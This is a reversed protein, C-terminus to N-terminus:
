FQVTFMAGDGTPSLSAQKAPGSWLRYGCYGALVLGAGASVGGWRRRAWIARQDASYADHGYGVIPGSGATRADLDGQRLLASVLLYGGVGLAAVGTGAGVASLTRATAASAAAETQAALTAGRDPAVAPQPAARRATTAELKDDAAERRAIEMAKAKGQAEAKALAARLNRLEALHSKTREIMVPNDNDLGLVRLYLAEAVDLRLARHEARAANYLYEPKPDARFARLFGAAAGLFDGAAYAERALSAEKEAHDHAVALGSESAWAAPTQLAVCVAAGLALALRAMGAAAMRRPPRVAPAELGSNEPRGLLDSPIHAM